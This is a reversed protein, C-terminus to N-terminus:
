SRTWAYVPIKLFVNKEEEATLSIGTSWRCSFVVILFRGFLSSLGFSTFVALPM